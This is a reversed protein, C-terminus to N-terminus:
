KEIRKVYTDLDSKFSEIAGTGLFERSKKFGLLVAAEIPVNFRSEFMSIAAQYPQNINKITSEKSVWDDIGDLLRTVLPNKPVDNCNIPM